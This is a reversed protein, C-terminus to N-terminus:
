ILLIHLDSLTLFYHYFYHLHNTVSQVIKGRLNISGCERVIEERRANSSTSYDLLYPVDTTLTGVVKLANLDRVASHVQLHLVNPRAKSHVGPCSGFEIEIEMLIRPICRDLILWV